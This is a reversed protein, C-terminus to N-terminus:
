TRRLVTSRRTCPMRRRLAAHRLSLELATRCADHGSLCAPIAESPMSRIDIWAGTEVGAGMIFFDGAARQHAVLVVDVGAVTGDRDVGLAAGAHVIRAIQM